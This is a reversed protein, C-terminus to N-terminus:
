TKKGFQLIYDNLWAFSTVYNTAMIFWESNFIAGVVTTESLFVHLSDNPIWLCVSLALFILMFGEFAGFIAGLFRNILRLPKVKDFYEDMLTSVLWVAFKVLIFLLVFSIAVSIWKAIIPGLLKAGTTGAPLPQGAFVQAVIGAFFAPMYEALGEATATGSLEIALLEQGSLADVLGNAIATTMGFVHELFGEFSVCYLVAFVLAFITGALKKLSLILGRAAGVLVFAFIIVFFAVDVAWGGAALLNFGM